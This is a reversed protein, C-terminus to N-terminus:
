KYMYIDTATVSIIHNFFDYCVCKYANSAQKFVSESVIDLTLFLADKQLM